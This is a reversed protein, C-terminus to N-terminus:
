LLSSLAEGCEQSSLLSFLIEFKLPHTITIPLSSHIIVLLEYDGLSAGSPGGLM